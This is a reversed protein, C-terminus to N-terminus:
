EKYQVIIKEIYIISKRFFIVNEMKFRWTEREVHVEKTTLKSVAVPYPANLNSPDINEIFRYISGSISAIFLPNRM